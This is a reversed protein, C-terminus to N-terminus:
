ERGARPTATGAPGLKRGVPWRETVGAARFWRQATRVSVGLERAYRAPSGEVQAAGLRVAVAWAEPDKARLVFLTLGMDSHPLYTVPRAM